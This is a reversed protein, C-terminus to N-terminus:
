FPLKRTLPEQQLGGSLNRKRITQLAQQTQFHQSSSPPSAKKSNNGSINGIASPNEQDTPQLPRKEESLTGTSTSPTSTAVVARTSKSRLSRGGGKNSSPPQSNRRSAASLCTVSTSGFPPRSPCPPSRFRFRIPITKTTTSWAHATTSSTCDNRSRGSPHSSWVVGMWCLVLRQTRSLKVM